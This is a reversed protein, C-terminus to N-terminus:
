KFEGGLSQYLPHFNRFSIDLDLLTNELLNMRMSLDEYTGCERVWIMWSPIYKYRSEKLFKIFYYHQNFDLYNIKLVIVFFNKSLSSIIVQPLNGVRVQV